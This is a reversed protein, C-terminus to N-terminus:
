LTLIKGIVAGAAMLALPPISWRLTTAVAVVALVLSPWDVLTGSAFAFAVAATLGISAATVADLFLGAWRRGRLRAVWPNSLEVYVFSPLLVAITAVVAGPFKGLLYGLFTVTSLLPGPTIQGVAVADLLQQETIWGNETVLGGRLYAVLVYGSGYLVAGVKLFVLAFKWLPVSAAGIAAAGTAGAALAGAAQAKWGTGLLTTTAVAASVSKVAPPGSRETCRLFIAGLLGGGLLTLIPNGGALAAIAVGAAILGLRWNKVASKGLRWLAAFVIGVVIPQIGRLFPQVEPRSGYGVYMWALVLSILVAPLSFASGATLCGLVGAREHGLHNAMEVANPGPLLYTAGLLDLFRERSVWGRREVAEQQMAAIYVAPGGFSLTGLKVFVRILEWLRHLMLMRGNFVLCGSLVLAAPGPKGLVNVRWKAGQRSPTKANTNERM